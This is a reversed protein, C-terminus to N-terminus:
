VGSGRPQSQYLFFTYPYGLTQPVCISHTMMMVAIAITFKQAMNRQSEIRDAAGHIM